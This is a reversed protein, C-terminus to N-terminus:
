AFFSLPRRHCDSSFSGKARNTCPDGSKHLVVRRRISDGIRGLRRVSKKNNSEISLQFSVVGMDLYAAATRM